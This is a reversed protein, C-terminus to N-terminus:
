LTCLCEDRVITFPIFFFFFAEVSSYDIGDFHGDLDSFYDFFLHFLGRTEYSVDPSWFLTDLM